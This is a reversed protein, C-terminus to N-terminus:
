QRVRLQGRGVSLDLTLTPRGSVAAPAPALTSVLHAGAEVRQDYAQVVGLGVQYRLAVDTGPPVVVELRGTGVRAAYTTDQRLDLRSLDVELEGTQQLDGAPPLAAASLYQRQVSGSQQLQDVPPLVSTVLVVPVLLLGLPLLGRARGCWTAAVLTLGVVLLAAAAPVVLPVHVGSRDALALGSLVLGLVALCVLRLRRAAVRDRPRVLAAPRVPEAAYLGVPDPQALFATREQVDPDWGSPATAAPAGAGPLTPWEAATAPAAAAPVPHQQRVHQEIRQRWAEAAATFPTPPGAHQVFEPAPAAGPGTSWPGTVPLAGSPPRPPAPRRRHYGFYWIALIVLLPGVGVKTAKSVVPFVVLCAVVVLAVWVERSWGRTSGGLLDHGAATPRGQQPVLLWGALYLVVGIGGTFALLVWAVRVLVPDVGWHEAVGGCLGALKADTRSRRVDWISSM